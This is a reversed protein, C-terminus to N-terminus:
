HPEIQISKVYIQKGECGIGYCIIKPFHSKELEVTYKKELIQDLAKQAAVELSEGRRTKKFEVVLAPKTHDKPIVMIDYRGLGSEKNSNVVYRNQLMVVIGLVFLHYSREPENNPVDFSSMSNFIFSQLLEAFIETDGTTLAM